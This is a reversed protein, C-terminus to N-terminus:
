RTGNRADSDLRLTAVTGDSEIEVSRGDEAISRLTIGKQTGGLTFATGDIVVVQRAGMSVGTLRHSRALQAAKAEPSAPPPPAEQEAEPVWAAPARFANVPEATAERVADLRLRLSPRAIDTPKSSPEKAVPPTPPTTAIAAGAAAPGLGAGGGTLRDIVLAAIAVAAVTLGVKRQLTLEM